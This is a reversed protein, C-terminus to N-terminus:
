NSVWELSIMSNADSTPSTGNISLTVGSDQWAVMELYDGINLSVLTGPYPIVIIANITAAVYIGSAPVPTGNVQLYIRRRGTINGAFAVRGSVLYWGPQTATYRSPLVTTSHMGSTDVDSVDFEVPLGVSTLVNQGTVCRGQAIAPTVTLALEHQEVRNGLANIAVSSAAQGPLVDDWTYAM